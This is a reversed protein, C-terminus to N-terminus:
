DVGDGVTTLDIGSLDSGEVLGLAEELGLSGFVTSGSEVTQIYFSYNKM